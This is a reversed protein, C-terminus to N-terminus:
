YGIAIFRFTTANSVSKYAIFESASTPSSGFSYAGSGTDSAVLQLCAKPFPTPFKYTTGTTNMAYQGWQIILGSPLKQYGNTQFSADFDGSNITNYWSM